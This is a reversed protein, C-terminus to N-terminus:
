VTLQIDLIHSSLMPASITKCALNAVILEVLGITNRPGTTASSNAWTKHFVAVKASILFLHCYRSPFGYITFNLLEYKSNLLSKVSVLIKAANSYSNSLVQISGLYSATFLFIITFRISSIWVEISVFLASFKESFVNLITRSTLWTNHYASALHINLVVMSSITLSVVPDLFFICSIFDCNSFNTNSFIDLLIHLSTASLAM